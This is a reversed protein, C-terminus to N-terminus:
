GRPLAEAAVLLPVRVFNPLLQPGTDRALLSISVIRPPTRGAYPTRHGPQLPNVKADWFVARRVHDHRASHGFVAVHGHVRRGDVNAADLNFRDLM